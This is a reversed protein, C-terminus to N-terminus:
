MIETIDKEALKQREEKPLREMKQFLISAKASGITYYAYGLRALRRTTKKTGDPKVKKIEELWPILHVLAEENKDITLYIRGKLNHYDLVHEEDPSFSDLVSIGEEFRMNQYYCWALDMRADQSLRGAKFGPELEDIMFVNADTLDKMLREDQPNFELLDLIKERAERYEGEHLLEEAKGNQAQTSDPFEKLLPDYIGKAEEWRNQMQLFQGYCCVIREETDYEQGLRAFIEGAEDDKEQFLLIRAEELEAYPHYVSCEKIAELENQAQEVMGMDTFQRLRQYIEIYGDFDEGAMGEFLDYNLISDYQVAQFLFDVYGEPFWELLEKRNDVIRFTRDILKWVTSPLHYHEMLFVLFAKRVEEEMELDYCIDDEFLAEWEELDIRRYFDEYLELCRDIFQETATTEKRATEEKTKAYKCAEEYAERLQVFGEADDEPNVKRLLLRYAKRILEQDKTPEIGLIRFCTEIM